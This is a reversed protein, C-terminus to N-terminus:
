EFIINDFYKIDKKLYYKVEEEKLYFLNNSYKKYTNKGLCSYTFKEELYHIYIDAFENSNINLVFQFAYHEKNYFVIKILFNCKECILYHNEKDIPKIKLLNECAFCKYNKCIYNCSKCFLHSM